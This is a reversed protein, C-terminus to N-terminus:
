AAEGQERFAAKVRKIIARRDIVVFATTPHRDILQLVIEIISTDDRDFYVERESRVDRAYYRRFRKDSMEDLAWNMALIDAEVLPLGSDMLAKLYCLQRVSIPNWDRGRRPVGPPLNITVKRRRWNKVDMESAGSLELAVTNSVMGGAYCVVSITDLLVM